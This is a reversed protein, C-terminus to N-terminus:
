QYRGRHNWLASAVLNSAFSRNSLVVVVDLTTPDGVTVASVGPAGGARAYRNTERISRDAGPVYINLFLDTHVPDLLEDSLLALVFRHLDSATSYVGGAPTAPAAPFRQLPGTGQPGASYGFATNGLASPGEPGTDSMGLPTFIWADMVEHYSRGELAEVIAGLVVFGSNSYRTESGPAFDLPRSAILGLLTETDAYREPDAQFAPDILYDGLGSRMQLLHAITVQSGIDEPLSPLYTGVPDDLSLRGEQLLRLIGVGTFSKGLSGINFRTSTSVGGKSPSRPHGLGARPAPM